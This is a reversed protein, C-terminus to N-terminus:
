DGSMDLRSLTLYYTCISRSASVRVAVAWLDPDNQAPVRLYRPCKGGVDQRTQHSAETFDRAREELESAETASLCDYRRGADSQGADLEDIDDVFFEDIKFHLHTPLLTVQISVSKERM